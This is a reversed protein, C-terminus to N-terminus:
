REGKESNSQINDQPRLRDIMCCSFYHYYPVAGNLPLGLAAQGKLKSFTSLFKIDTTDITLQSLLLSSPENILMSIEKAYCL